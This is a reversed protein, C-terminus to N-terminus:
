YLCNFTGLYTGILVKFASIRDFFAVNKNYIFPMAPDNEMLFNHLYM